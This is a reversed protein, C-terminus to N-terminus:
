NKFERGEEEKTDKTLKTRPKKIGRWVVVEQSRACCESSEVNPSLCVSGEPLQERTWEAGENVM